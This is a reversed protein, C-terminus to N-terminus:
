ISSRPLELRTEVVCLTDMPANSLFEMSPIVREKLSNINIYCILPNYPFCKRLDILDKIVSSVDNIQPSDNLWLRM